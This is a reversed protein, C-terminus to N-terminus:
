ALLAVVISGMIVLLVVGSLTAFFWDREHVFTAAAILLRVVPIAMLILLGAALLLGPARRSPAALQWVLGTALLATSTAIGAGPLRALRVALQRARTM